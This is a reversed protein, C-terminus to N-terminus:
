NSGNNLDTFSRATATININNGAAISSGRATDSQSASNSQSKSTGISLTIRVDTAAKADYNGAKDTLSNATNYARLGASAAALAKM